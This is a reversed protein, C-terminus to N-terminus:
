GNWDDKQHLVPVVFEITRGVHVQSGAEHSLAKTGRQGRQLGILRDGDLEAYRLWEGGIKVFGGDAAGPFSTGDYLYLSHDQDGLFSALIGEPTADAAQAVVVRVLFAHPHIDDSPDHESSPGVDYAFEGGSAADILWGGRASDWVPQPDNLSASGGGHLPGLPDGWSTTGQAWMSIEFHLLDSLIPRTVEYVLMGPLDDEGPVIVDFPDVYRDPGAPFREGPLFWGCRLELLADDGPQRWPLLMLNGIGQLAEAARLKAVEAELEAGALTPDEALLRAVLRRDLLELEREPDLHIAGRLVQVRTAGREPAPPLGIPLMQVVLRDDVRQRDRGTSSGRLLSLQETIVRQARGARDALVQSTEGDRFMRLGADVLQVLMLLFGSLIGMVVLLEILTFGGSRDSAPVHSPVSM